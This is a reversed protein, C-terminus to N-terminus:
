SSSLPDAVCAATRRGGTRLHALVRLMNALFLGTAIALSLTGVTAVGAVLLGAGALHLGLWGQELPRSALQTAVPVPQKGVKPGPIASLDVREGSAVMAETLAATEGDDMGRLVIAMLLASAQYDPVSGDVVGRVFLDIEPRTLAQGDRKRAIVDVFRM